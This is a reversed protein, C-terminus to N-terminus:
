DPITDREQESPETETLTNKLFLTSRDFAPITFTVIKKIPYFLLSGEKTKDDIVDNREDYSETLIVVAGIIFLMKLISFAIGFIKNV